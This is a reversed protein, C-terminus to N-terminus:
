TPSRVIASPTIDTAILHPSAVGTASPNGLIPSIGPAPIAPSVYTAIPTSVAANIGSAGPYSVAATPAGAAASVLGLLPFPAIPAVLPDIEVSLAWEKLSVRLTVGALDGAATMQTAVTHVATVVFYGRHVGNGFVLPLASHNDGASLLANLQVEPNTFSAHFRLDFTISALSDALWQLRPRAEIVRHEVYDSARTYEFAEPSGLVEFEMDGLVAFM